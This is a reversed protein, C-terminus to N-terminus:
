KKMRAFYNLSVSSFMQMLTGWVFLSQHFVHTFLLGAHQGRRRNLTCLKVVFFLSRRWFIAKVKVKLVWASMGHHELQVKGEIICSSLKVSVNKPVDLLNAGRMLVSSHQMLTENQCAFGCACSILTQEQNLLHIVYSLCIEAWIIYPILFHCRSVARSHM